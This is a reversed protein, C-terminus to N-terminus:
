TQCICGDCYSTSAINFDVQITAMLQDVLLISEQLPRNLAQVMKDPMLEGTNELLSQFHKETPFRKHEMYNPLMGPDVVEEFLWAGMADFYRFLQRQLKRLLDHQGPELKPKITESLAVVLRYTDYAGLWRSTWRQTNCARICPEHRFTGRDLLSSLITIFGTSTLQDLAILEQIRLYQIKVKEDYFRIEFSSSPVINLLYELAARVREINKQLPKDTSEQMRDLLQFAIKDDGMRMQGSYIIESLANVINGRVFNGTPQLLIQQLIDLDNMGPARQIKRAIGAVIGAQGSQIFRNVLEPNQMLKESIKQVAVNKLRLRSPINEIQTYTDFEESLQVIEVAVQEDDSAKEPQARMWKEILNLFDLLDRQLAAEERAADSFSITNRIRELRVATHRAEMLRVETSWPFRYERAYGLLLELAEELSNNQVLTRLDNLHM